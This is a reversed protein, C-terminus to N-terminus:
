VRPHLCQRSGRASRETDLPTCISPPARSLAAYGPLVPMKAPDAELLCQERPTACLGDQLEPRSSQEPMRTPQATTAEGEDQPQRGHSVPPQTRASDLAELPATSDSDSSNHQSQLLNQVAKLSGAMQNHMAQLVIEEANLAKLRAEDEVLTAEAVSTAARLRVVEEASVSDEASEEAEKGDEVQESQVPGDMQHQALRGRLENQQSELEQMRRKERVLDVQFGLIAVSADELQEELAKVHAEASCCQESALKAELQLQRLSALTM